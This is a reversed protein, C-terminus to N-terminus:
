SSMGGLSTSQNSDILTINALPAIRPQRINLEAEEVPPQQVM